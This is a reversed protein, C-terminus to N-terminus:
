IIDKEAEEAVKLEDIIQSNEKPLEDEIETNRVLARKTGVKPPLPMNALREAEINIDDDHFRVKKIVKKKEVVDPKVNM